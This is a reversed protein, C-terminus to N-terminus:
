DESDIKKILHDEINIPTSKSEVINEWDGTDLLNSVKKIAYIDRNRANNADTVSKKLEETNHFENEKLRDKGKVSAGYYEATFRDMWDKLEEPLSDIYDYDVFERRNKPM